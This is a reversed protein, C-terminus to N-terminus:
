LAACKVRRLTVTWTAMTVEAPAPCCLLSRLYLPIIPESHLPCANSAM